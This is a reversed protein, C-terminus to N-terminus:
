PKAVHWVGGKGDGTIDGAAVDTVFTYLPAGKYTWQKAGDARDIIAWDGEAVDGDAAALIPWNAVCEGECASVGASDKDFTYLTMGEPTTLIPGGASDATVAPAALAQGAALILAFTATMMRNM